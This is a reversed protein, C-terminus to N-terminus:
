RMDVKSLHWSLIAVWSGVVFYILIAWMTGVITVLWACVTLFVAALLSLLVVQLRNLGMRELRLAFHDKSGLFPSRGRMMRIVMVYLTDFIPVLLIFIPAYYGFPNVQTYDTGLALAALVFGLLLSGSDGMFIKYRSSMNWPFFGLAAGVLAAAGFNVYIDESPLAILLFGLSAVVAQSSALGDMIDIINFANCIGVVWLITLIVGLNHPQIFRIEIGFHVLLAAAAIQVVFKSKWGLGQPKRLDDVIGLLFVLGGGILIARLRYLTGTPFNTLFRMAVLTGAFAIWIAVGGLSPTAVKHTKIESEPTDYWGMKVAALRVLPTACVSLVFAILVAIIYLWKQSLEPMM